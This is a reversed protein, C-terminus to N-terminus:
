ENEMDKILNNVYEEDHLAAEKLGQVYGDRWARQYLPDKPLNDIIANM